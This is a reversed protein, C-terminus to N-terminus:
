LDSNPLDLFQNLEQRVTKGIALAENLVQAYETAQQTMQITQLTVLNTEIQTFLEYRRAILRQHKRLIKETMLACILSERTATLAEIVAPRDILSTGQKRMPKVAGLQDIVDVADLIENHKDVEELLQGLIRLKRSQLVMYTNWLLFFGVSVALAVQLFLVITGTAPNLNGFSRALVLSLPLCFVLMLGFTLLETVVFSLMQQPKRFVSPRYVRGMFTNSIDLGTIHELERATIKLLELDTQM